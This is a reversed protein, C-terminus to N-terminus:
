LILSTNLTIVQKRVIAMQLSHCQLSLLDGLSRAFSFNSSIVTDNASRMSHQLFNRNKSMKNEKKKWRENKEM